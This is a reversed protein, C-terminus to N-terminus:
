PVGGFKDHTCCDSGCFAFDTSSTAGRVGRDRNVVATVSFRLTRRLGYRQPHSAPTIPLRGNAMPSSNRARDIVPQLVVM